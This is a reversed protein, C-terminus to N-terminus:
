FSIRGERSPSKRARTNGLIPPNQVVGLPPLNVTAAARPSVAPQVPREWRFLRMWPRIFESM